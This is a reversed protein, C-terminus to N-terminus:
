GNRWYGYNQRKLERIRAALAREEAAKAYPGQTRFSTDSGCGSKTVNSSQKITVCSGSSLGRFFGIKEAPEYQVKRFGKSRFIHTDLPEMRSNNIRAIGTVNKVIEDGHHDTYNFVVVEKKLYPNNVITRPGGSKWYGVGYYKVGTNFATGGVTGRTLGDGPSRSRISDVSLRSAVWPYVTVPCNGSPCYRNADDFYGYTDAFVGVATVAVILFCVFGTMIKKIDM